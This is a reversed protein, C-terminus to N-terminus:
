DDTEFHRMNLFALTQFQNGWKLWPSMQFWQRTYGFTEMLKQEWEPISRGQNVAQVKGVSISYTATPVARMDQYIPQQQTVYPASHLGTKSPDLSVLEPLFKILEQAVAYPNGVIDEWKVILVKAGANRMYQASELVENMGSLWRNSGYQSHKFFCTSRIVYIFSANANMNRVTQYLKPFRKMNNVSKELLIPKSMDWYKSYVALARKWDAPYAPNSAQNYPWLGAKELIPAGECCNGLGKCLNSTQPSTSLLGYLSTTGTYALGTIFVYQHSAHAATKQQAEQPTKAASSFKLRRQMIKSIADAQVKHLAEAKAKRDAVAMTWKILQRDPVIGGLPCIDMPLSHQNTSNVALTSNVWGSSITLSRRSLAQGASVKQTLNERRNQVIM